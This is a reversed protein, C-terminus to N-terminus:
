VRVPPMQNVMSEVPTIVALLEAASMGGFASDYKSHVGPCTNFKRVVDV